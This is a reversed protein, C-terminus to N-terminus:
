EYLSYKFTKQTQQRWKSSSLAKLKRQRDLQGFPSFLPNALGNPLLCLRLLQKM